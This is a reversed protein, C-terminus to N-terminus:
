QAILGKALEFIRRCNGTDVFTHYKSLAKKRMAVYRDNGSLLDDLTDIVENWNSCKPGPTAENYDEYLERCQTVYQELDFPAFVIPRNLLLFDYSIGSYDTVLIDVHPLLPNPDPLDDDVVWHIRSQNSSSGIALGIDRDVYHMKILMVANHRSLCDELDAKNSGSFLDVEGCDRFTPAYLIVSKANWSEIISELVPIPEPESCLIIDNRPWGTLKIKSEDLGFATRFRESIIPSTSAIADWREKTFPFVTHWAWWVLRQGMPRDDPNETIKDDLGIKKLPAGHWLHLRKARSIGVRNVDRNGSSCVVLGARCSLWYGMWSNILYAEREARRVEEVIHKERSLWIARISSENVCVYDFLYRSNDTYQHGFWAGFVWVDKRRPVLFSIGYFPLLITNVVLKQILVLARQALGVLKRVM